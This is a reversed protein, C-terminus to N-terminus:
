KTAWFSMRIYSVSKNNINITKWISCTGLHDSTICMTRAVYRYRTCALTSRPLFFDQTSCAIRPFYEKTDDHCKKRERMGRQGSFSGAFYCIILIETRQGNRFRHSPTHFDSCFAFRNERLKFSRDNAKTKGIADTMRMHRKPNDPGDKRRELHQRISSSSFTFSKSYNGRMQGLFLDM